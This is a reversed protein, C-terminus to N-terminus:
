RLLGGVGKGNGINVPNTCFGGLQM